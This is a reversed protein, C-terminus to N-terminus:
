FEFNLIDLEVDTSGYYARNIAAPSFGKSTILIGQKADVDEVMSIFAEVVKIDINKNFCKCDVILRIKKGAIYSEILIDIQRDIHSYKGRLKQNFTISADKYIEKLSEFIEKEYDKWNM